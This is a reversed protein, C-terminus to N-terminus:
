IAVYSKRGVKRFILSCTPEIISITPVVYHCYTFGNGLLVGERFGDTIREGQYDILIHLIVSCM